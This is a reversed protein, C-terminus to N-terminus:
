ANTKAKELLKNIKDLQDNATSSDVEVNVSIGSEEEESWDIVSHVESSAKPPKVKYVSGAKPQSNQGEGWTVYLPYGLSQLNDMYKTCLSQVDESAFGYLMNLDVPNSAHANLLFDKMIRFDCNYPTSRKGRHNVWNLKNLFCGGNHELNFVRDIFLSKNTFPDSSLQGTEYMYLIDTANAWAEGGFGFGGGTFELFLEKMKVLSEAGYKEYIFYWKSWALKRVSSLSTIAKHHRLEGGCAAHVYERFVKSLNEVMKTYILEAEAAMETLENEPKSKAYKELYEVRSSIADGSLGLAKGAERVDDAAPLSLDEYDISFAKNVIGNLIYFDGAAQAVDIEEFPIDWLKRWTTGPEEEIWAPYEFSWPCVDTSDETYTTESIDSDPEEAIKVELSQKVLLESLIQKPNVPGQDEQDEAIYMVANILAKDKISKEMQEIQVNEIKM